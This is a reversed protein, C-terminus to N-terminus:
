KTSKYFYGNIFARFATKVNDFNRCRMLWTILYGLPRIVRVAANGHLVDMAILNRIIYYTKWDYIATNEPYPIQRHFIADTVIAAKIGNKKMRISYETDDGTIFFDKEVFGIREYVSRHFLPGELTMGDVFVLSNYFDKENVISRWISKFPNTLNVEKTDNYFVEGKSTLRKPVVVLDKTAHKLLNHLCESDAVVDDDMQWVWDYGANFAVVAGTHQGGSSGLNKQTIFEIDEQQTLWDVTGDTSSNNIVIIKDLKITQTRLGAVVKKLLELRNYTVIVAAIKETNKIV